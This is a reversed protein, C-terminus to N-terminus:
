EGLQGAPEGGAARLEGDLGADLNLEGFWAFNKM